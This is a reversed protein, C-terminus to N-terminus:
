PVPLGAWIRDLADSLIVGIPVTPDSRLWHDMAVTAAAGTAAAVLSPYIDRAVDTGIREAIATALERQVVLDAKFFEGQVDPETLMLRIGKVWQSLFERSRPSRDAGPEPAFRALVAHTVAEPLPEDAPRARLDDAVHLMRDIHRAVVAEAKSSFYNRFTRVSVNAEAAIDEVTVADWGREVSLRITAWSLAARTEQKKRERLGLPAGDGTAM